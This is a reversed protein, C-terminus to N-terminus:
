PLCGPIINGHFYGNYFDFRSQFTALRQAADGGASANAMLRERVVSFPTPTPREALRSRAAVLVVRPLTSRENIRSVAVFHHPRTTPQWVHPLMHKDGLASRPPSQFSALNDVMNVTVLEVVAGFVQDHTRPSAVSLPVALQLAGCHSKYVLPQDMEIGTAAVDARSQWLVRMGARELGLDLGGIGSFLSGVNM